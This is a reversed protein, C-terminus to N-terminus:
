AAEWSYIWCVVAMLTSHRSSIGAWFTSVDGICIHLNAATCAHRMNTRAPLDWRLGSPDSIGKHITSSADDAYTM